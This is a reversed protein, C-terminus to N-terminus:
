RKLKISYFGSGEGTKRVTLYYTGKKWKGKTSIKYGATQLDAVSGDVVDGKSNM